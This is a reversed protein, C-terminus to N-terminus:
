IQANLLVTKLLDSERDVRKYPSVKELSEIIASQMKMLRPMYESYMIVGKELQSPKPLRIEVKEKNSTVTFTILDDKIVFRNAAIDSNFILSLAAVNKSEYAKKYEAFLNESHRSAKWNLFYTLYNKMLLKNERMVCLTPIETSSPIDTSIETCDRDTVMERAYMATLFPLLPEGAQLAEQAIATQVLKLANSLYYSSRINQNSEINSKKMYEDVVSKLGADWYEKDVELYPYLVLLQTLYRELSKVSVLNEIDYADNKASEPNMSLYPTKKELGEFNASPLHLPMSDLYVTKSFFYLSDVLPLYRDRQFSYLKENETSSFIARIPNELTSNGGFAESIGNQCKEFGNREVSHVVRQIDAFKKINKSFHTNIIKLDNIGFFSNLEFHNDRWISSLQFRIIRECSRIDQNLLSKNIELNVLSLDRLEALARMEDQHYQDVMLALDKIMKMTELQMEMMKRQNEMIIDLKKNIEKLAGSIDAGGGGGLLSGMIPSSSFAAIAGLPGGAAFGVAMSKVTSVAQAVKQATQIVKQVEKSPTIGVLKCMATTTNLINNLNESMNGVATASKLLNQNIRVQKSLISSNAGDETVDKGKIVKEYLFNMVRKSHINSSAEPGSKTSEYLDKLDKRMGTMGSSFDDINKETNSLHTELAKTLVMFEKAKSEFAKVDEAIAKAKALINKFGNNDKVAWYIAGALAGSGVVVYQENENLNSSKFYRDMKELFPRSSQIMKLVKEEQGRRVLGEIEEAMKPDSLAMDQAVSLALDKALEGVRKEYTGIVETLSKNKIYTFASIRVQDEFSIAESVIDSSDVLSNAILAKDFSYKEKRFLYYNKIAKNDKGVRKLIEDVEETKLSSMAEEIVKKDDAKLSKAVLDALALNPAESNLISNILAIHNVEDQQVAAVESKPTENYITKETTKSCASGLIVLSLLMSTKKM